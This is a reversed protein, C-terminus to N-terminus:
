DILLEKLAKELRAAGKLFDLHIRVFSFPYKNGYEKWVVHRIRCYDKETTLILLSDFNASNESHQHYLTVIKQLEAVSYTHHDAFGITELVEFGANGLQQFFYANNGLGAFAIVGVKHANSLHLGEVLGRGDFDYIGEFAPQCAVLPKGWRQLRKEVQERMAHTRAKNVILFDARKLGQIPERLRGAPLLHDRSPPRNADILVLELDRAVKRHQFADDLVILMAGEEDVLRRIGERRDECVAVPLAPFRVAVSLAEDGFQTADGETPKVLVYGKTKRGYGRSLYAVRVGRDAYWRMLYIAFPTKGTGGASINGVSIIPIPAKYISKVGTSYLGNRLWMVWGYVWSFPM